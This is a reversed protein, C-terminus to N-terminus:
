ADPQASTPSGRHRAVQERVAPVVDAAFRRVQMLADGSPGYVFTEM